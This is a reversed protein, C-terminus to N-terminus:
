LDNKIFEVIRNAQFVNNKNKLVFDRAAMGLHKLEEDTKGLVNSISQAFGELTEEEFLFIYPYYEEPMGPLKTTLLPTGSVMYEMNKSPFSYKTFEETTFRPNILLTAKCEAEVIKENPAVGLYVIRKDTEAEHKLEDVYSGNGYIHLEVDQHPLKKFAEVLMKLGYPEELGGAYMLVKPYAKDSVSFREDSMEEDCLAEMVVYPRSKPNVVDNMAETLLVYGNFSRVYKRNLIGACTKLFATIGRSKTGVMQDYIDTVVAVSKLGCIKTALLGGMSSSICLVDCVLVKENRNKLGWLLVYFFSYIFITFHKLIPLNIFPMYKYAIDGEKENDISVWLSGTYEKTVPPVTLAVMDVGNGDLGKVLLRSFKQVAFGPNTGTKAYINKILSESSLASLYVVDM